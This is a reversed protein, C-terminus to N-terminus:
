PSLPSPESREQGGVLPAVSVTLESLHPNWSHNIPAGQPSPAFGPAAGKKARKRAKRDAEYQPDEPRGKNHAM